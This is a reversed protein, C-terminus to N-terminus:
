LIEIIVHNKEEFRLNTRRGETEAFSKVIDELRSISAPEMEQWDCDEDDEHWPPTFWDGWHRTVIFVVDGEQDVRVEASEWARKLTKALIEAAQTKTKM